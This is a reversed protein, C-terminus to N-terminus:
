TTHLHIDIPRKHPQSIIKGIFGFAQIKQVDLRIIRTAIQYEFVSKGFNKPIADYVTPLFQM